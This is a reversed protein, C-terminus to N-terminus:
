STVKEKLKETVITDLLEFLTVSYEEMKTFNEILIDIQNINIGSNIIEQINLSNYDMLIM